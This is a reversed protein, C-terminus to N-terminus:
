WANSSQTGTSSIQFPGTKLNTATVQSLFLPRPYYDFYHCGLRCHEIMFGYATMYRFSNKTKNPKTKTKLFVRWCVLLIIFKFCSYIMAVTITSSKWSLSIVTIYEWVTTMKMVLIVALVMLMILGVVLFLVTAMIVMTIILENNYIM